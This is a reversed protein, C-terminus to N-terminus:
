CRTLARPGDRWSNFEDAVPHTAKKQRTRFQILVQVLHRRQEEAAVRQL